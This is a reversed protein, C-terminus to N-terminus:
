FERMIHTHRKGGEIYSFRICVHQWVYGEAYELAKTMHKFVALRRNGNEDIGQVTYAM